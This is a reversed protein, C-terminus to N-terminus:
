YEIKSSMKLSDVEQENIRQLDLKNISSGVNVKQNKNKEQIKKHIM